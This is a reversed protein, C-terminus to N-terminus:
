NFLKRNSTFAIFLKNIAKIYYSHVALPYLFFGVILNANFFIGGVDGMVDMIDYSKRFNM